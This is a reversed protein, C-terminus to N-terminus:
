KYSFDLRFKKGIFRSFYGIIFGIFKSCDILIGVYILPIFNKFVFKKNFSNKKLPIILGRFFLYLVIFFIFLNFNLFFLLTILISFLIYLIPLYTKPFYVIQLSYNIVKLILILSSDAYATNLYSIKVNKNIYTNFKNKVAQRIFIRDYHSRFPMFFNNNIFYERKIFSSPIAPKLSELGYTQAIVLKDFYGFPLINVVGFIIDLNKNSIIEKIQHKTWDKDFSLDFDMFACWIAKSKKIGYNKAESPSKLETFHNEWNKINYKSIFNNILYSSQDTSFSNVFIIKNPKITLSRLKILTELIVKEENYYPIIIDFNVYM